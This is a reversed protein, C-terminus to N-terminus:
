PNAITKSLTMLVPKRPLRQAVLWLSHTFQSRRHLPLVKRLPLLHLPQQRVNGLVFLLQSVRPGLRSPALSLLGPPLGADTTAATLRSGIQGWMTVLKAQLQEFNTM